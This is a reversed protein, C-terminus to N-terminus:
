TFYKKSLFSTTFLLRTIMIEQDDGFNLLINKKKYFVLSSTQLRKIKEIFFKAAAILINKKQYYSYKAFFM